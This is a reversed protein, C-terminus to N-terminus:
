DQREDDDEPWNIRLSTQHLFVGSLQRNILLGDIAEHVRDKLLLVPNYVVRDLGAEGPVFDLNRHIPREAWNEICALFTTPQNISDLRLQM